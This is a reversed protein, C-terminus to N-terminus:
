QEHNYIQKKYFLNNYDLYKDGIFERSNQIYQKGLAILSGDPLIYGPNKMTHNPTLFTYMGTIISSDPGHLALARGFLNPGTPCLPYTGYWKNKINELSLQICLEIVKMRPRAYIVGNSADWSCLGPNPADRFCVMSYGSDFPERLLITSFDFYWGGYLYLILYRALDAKFAPPRLNLYAKLIESGYQKEILSTIRSENYYNVPLQCNPLLSLLTSNSILDSPKNLDIWIQFIQM